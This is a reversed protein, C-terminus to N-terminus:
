GLLDVDQEAVLSRLANGAAKRAERLAADPEIRPAIQAFAAKVGARQAANEFLFIRLHTWGHTPDAPSKQTSATEDNSRDSTGGTPNVLTIMDLLAGERVAQHDIPEVHDHLYASYEDHRGPAARFWIMKACTAATARGPHQTTGRFDKIGSQPM